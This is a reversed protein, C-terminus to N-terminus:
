EQTMDIVVATGLSLSSGASVIPLSHEIHFHILEPVSVFIRDRTRVQLHCFLLFHSLSRTLSQTLSQTLSHTLSYTLSHTLSHTHTHTLSHTLSPTLTHTLQTHTGTATRIFVYMTCQDSLSRITTWCCTCM